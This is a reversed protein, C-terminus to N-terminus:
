DAVRARNLDIRQGDRLARVAAPTAPTAVPPRAHTDAAPPQAARPIRALAVLALAAAIACLAGSTPRDLVATYRGRPAPTARGADAPRRRTNLAATSAPRLDGRRLACESTKARLMGCSPRWSARTM